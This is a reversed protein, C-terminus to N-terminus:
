LSGATQDKITWGLNLSELKERVPYGSKPNWGRAHYYANMMANFDPVTTKSEETFDTHLKLFVAPLNDNCRRLGLGFNIVRKLNWAREGALLLDTLEYSKGSAHNLLALTDEPDVNTFICMVLSNLLTVWDQHKAINASKEAGALRDFYETGILRETHGLDVLFYDSQNHCAGRPSTAYVVAMGTAGRPDHYPVELGNVQVAGNEAGFRQALARAGEAMLLGFDQRNAILNVLMEVTSHDGWMLEYGGTDYKTIIGMSYLHIALGIINSTSISDIGYRDCLEGMQTAFEANNLMLNPGFGALTEYEPGKRPKGDGLTVVRGCAIVCAHCASIGTLITEKLAAGSIRLEESFKGKQFYRKPLEELYNFYEATSSTGLDRLITSQVDERLSKNVDSRLHKYKELESIPIKKTGRVAIAKLNKSGMVAGMGTRGAVRGHDCLILAFPILSEGAIGISAVRITNNGLENKLISQTEYTDLGWLRTADRIEVTSDNIWIYVPHPASGEIWLGIYGAKRLEQGWFGGCNSEGWLNTAPSRGCVVFRGVAPGATGSLPGNMFLLPAEPALPDLDQVLKDYLLRAALSAGGIYEYEWQPPVSIEEITGTNLNVKLIPQL